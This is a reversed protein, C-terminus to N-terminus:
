QRTRAGSHSAARDGARHSGACGPDRAPGTRAYGCSGSSLVLPPAPRPHGTRAARKRAPRRGRPDRFAPVFSQYPAASSTAAACKRYPAPHSRQFAIGGHKAAMVTGALPLFQCQGCSRRSRRRIVIAGPILRLPSSRCWLNGHERQVVSGFHGAGSSQTLSGNEAEHDKGLSSAGSLAGFETGRQAVNSRMRPNPKLGRSPYVRAKYGGLDCERRAWNNEPSALRTVGIGSQAADIPESLGEDAEPETAPDWNKPRHLQYIGCIGCKKRSM